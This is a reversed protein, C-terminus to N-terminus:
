IQDSAHHEKEERSVPLDGITVANGGLASEHPTFRHLVDPDHGPVIIANAARAQDRLHLFVDYMEPLSSIAIFPMDRELEEYFHVADSALIVPGATTQLRVMAQGPTHGGVEVVELGPAPSCQGRFLNLKGAHHRQRLYGIEVEEAYHSFQTHAATPSNWFRYEAEAMHFTAQPFLDANGIHDYHGHTLIVDNVDDPEISLEMLAQRPHLLLERDRKLGARPSFGTDVIVTRHQNRLIWFFYDVKAPGDPEGYLHYNLFVDSRKTARTGM